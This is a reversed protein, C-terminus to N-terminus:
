DDNDDDEWNGLDEEPINEIEKIYNKIEEEHTKQYHSYWYNQFETALASIYKLKTTEINPADNFPDDTRLTNILSVWNEM